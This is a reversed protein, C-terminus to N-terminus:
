DRREELKQIRREHEDLRDEHKLYQHSAAKRDRRAAEILPAMDDIFDFVRRMDEKTAVKHELIHRVEAMEGTLGSIALMGKELRTEVGGLRTEVGGLRTEVDGLRTEIGDVRSVVASLTTKVGNLESKVDALAQRMEESM